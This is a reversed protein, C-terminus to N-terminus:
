GHDNTALEQAAARIADPISNVGSGGMTMNYVRRFYAHGDDPSAWSGGARANGPVRWIFEHKKGCEKCEDLWDAVDNLQKPTPTM